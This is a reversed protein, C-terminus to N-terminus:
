ATGVAAHFFKFHAWDQITALPLMKRVIKPVIEWFGEHQLLKSGYALYPCARYLFLKQERKPATRVAGKGITTRPVIAGQLLWGLPM